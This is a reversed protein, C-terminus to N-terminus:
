VYYLQEGHDISHEALLGIMTSRVSENFTVVENNDGLMLNILTKMVYYDGGAHSKNVSNDTELQISIPKQGNLELLIKLNVMDITCNGDSGLFEYVRITKPRFAGTSIDFVIPITKFGTNVNFYVQQQDPILDESYEFPDSTIRQFNRSDWRHYAKSLDANSKIKEIIEDKRSPIWFTNQAESKIRINNIPIKFVTEIFHFILDYDHVCKEIGLGGSISKYRRWNQMIIQGGHGIDLLECGNVSRLEGIQKLYKKSETCINSYRLTLGTQFFLNSQRSKFNEVLAKIQDISNVIPKECFINKNYKNAMIISNFHADNRSGIISVDFENETYVAEESETYLKTDTIMSKFVDSVDTLGNIVQHIKPDYIAVIKFQNIDIKQDSLVKTLDNNLLSIIRGGCGFISVKFM